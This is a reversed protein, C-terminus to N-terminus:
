EDETHTLVNDEIRDSLLLGLERKGFLSTTTM